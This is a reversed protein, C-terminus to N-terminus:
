SCLACMRAAVHTQTAACQGYPTGPGFESAAELMYQGLLEPNTTRSPLKKDLKDYIFEEIRAGPPFPISIMTLSFVYPSVNLSLISRLQMIFHLITQEEL